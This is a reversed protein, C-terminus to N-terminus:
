KEDEHKRLQYRAFKRFLWPQDAGAMVQLASVNIRRWIAQDTGGHLLLEFRDETQLDLAVRLRTVLEGTVFGVARSQGVVSCHLRRTPALGEIHFSAAFPSNKLLNAAADFSKTSWGAEELAFTLSQELGGTDRDKLFFFSRGTGRHSVTLTSGDSMMALRPTLEAVREFPKSRERAPGAPTLFFWVIFIVVLGALLLEM